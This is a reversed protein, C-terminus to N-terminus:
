RGGTIISAFKPFYLKLLKYVRVSIIAVCSVSFLYIILFTFDNHPFIKLTLPRFIISFAFPHIAFLFFSASALGKNGNRIKGVRLMKSIIMVTSVLGVFIFINHVCPINIASHVTDMPNRNILLNSIILMILVVFLPIKPLISLDKVINRGNISFFAGLCFFFLAVKPFYGSHFPSLWFICFLLMTILGSKKVLFYIIPSIVVMYMLDRVFWFPVAVPYISNKGYFFMNLLCLPDSLNHIAIRGDLVFLILTVVNWFIYPILLTKIRKKLKSVYIEKDFICKESNKNYFFYYGSIIFFLPVALEALIRSILFYVSYAISSPNMDILAQHNVHIFCVAVMLPFRLLDVTQSWLRDYNIVEISNQKSMKISLKRM